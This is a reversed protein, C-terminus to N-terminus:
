IYTVLVLQRDNESAIAYSKGIEPLAPLMVDMSLANIAMLAAVMAILEPRSLARSPASPAPAPIATM